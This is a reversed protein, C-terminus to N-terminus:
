MRHLIDALRNLSRSNRVMAIPITFHGQRRIFLNDQPVSWREALSRGRDFPMVTDVRGLKMVINAPEVACPGFPNTLQRVRQLEAETWGAAWIADGVGAARGIAGDFCVEWMDESTGALFLADPRLATPWRLARAGLLQASMGGISLGGVAVPTKYRDRCWGILVAMEAIQADFFDLVGMPARGLMPEGSWYGKEIRRNHWPSELRIVRLGLRVAAATEDLFNHRMEQEEGLGHCYILTPADPRDAPEHMRAWATDDVGRGPAPFRLWSVMGETSPVQKSCEIEPMPSPAPYATEPDDLWDGYREELAAFTPVEYRVLTIKQGFRLPRFKSRCSVLTHSTRRRALETEVLSRDDASDNGFFVQNWTASSDEYNRWASVMAALGARAARLQRESPRVLAAEEIFRDLDGDAATAAAWLRALPFYLRKLLAFTTRDFWPRAFLDGPPLQFFLSAGARRPLHTRGNIALTSDLFSPWFTPDKAM